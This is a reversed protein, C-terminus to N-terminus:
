FSQKGNKKFRMLRDWTIQKHLSDYPSTKSLHLEIITLAFKFVERIRSFFDYWIDGKASLIQKKNTKVITSLIKKHFFKASFYKYVHKNWTEVFILYKPCSLFVWVVSKLRFILSVFLITLPRWPFLFLFITSFMYVFLFRKLSIKFFKMLKTRKHLNIKIFITYNSLQFLRFAIDLLLDTFHRFNWYIKKQNVVEFAGLYEMGAM